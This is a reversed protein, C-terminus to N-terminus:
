FSLGASLSSSVEFRLDRVGVGLELRLLMALFRVEGGVGGRAGWTTFSRERVDGFAELKTTGLGVLGGLFGYGTLAAQETRTVAGVLGRAELAGYTSGGGVQGTGGGGTSGVYAGLDGGWALPTPAFVLAGARLGIAPSVATGNQSVSQQASLLLPVDVNLRWSEDARAVSAACLVLACAM